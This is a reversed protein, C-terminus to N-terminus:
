LENMRWQGQLSPGGEYSIDLRPVASRCDLKLEIDHLERAFLWRATMTAVLPQVADAAQNKRIGERSQTARDVAEKKWARLDNLDREYPALGRAVMEAPNSWRAFRRNLAERQKKLRAEAEAIEVDYQTALEDQKQASRRLDSVDRPVHNTKQVPDGYRSRLQERLYLFRRQAQAVSLPPIDRGMPDSFSMRARVLRGGEFSYTLLCPLELTTTAYMLGRENERLPAEREAAKVEDMAMGWRVRRLHFEESPPAASVPGSSSPITEVPLSVNWERQDQAANPTSAAEMAEARPSGGDKEAPASAPSADAAQSVKESHWLVPAPLFWTALRVLLALTAALFLVWAWKVEDM